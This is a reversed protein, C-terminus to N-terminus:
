VSFPKFVCIACLSETGLLLSGSTVSEAISTIDVCAEVDSRPQKDVSVVMKLSFPQQSLRKHHLRELNQRRRNKFSGFIHLVSFTVPASTVANSALRVYIRYAAVLRVGNNLRTFFASVTAGSCVRQENFVTSLLPFASKSTYSESCLVASFM